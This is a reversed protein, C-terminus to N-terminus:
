GVRGVCGTGKCLVFIVFIVYLMFQCCVSLHTMLFPPLKFTSFYQIVSILTTSFLIYILSHDYFFVSYFFSKTTSFYFFLFISVGSHVCFLEDVAHCPELLLNLHHIYVMIRVSLHFPPLLSVILMVLFELMNIVVISMIVMLYICLITHHIMLASIPLLGTESRDGPMSFVCHGALPRRPTIPYTDRVYRRRPLLVPQFQFVVTPLSVLLLSSMKELRKLRLSTWIPGAVSGSPDSCWLEGLCSPWECM